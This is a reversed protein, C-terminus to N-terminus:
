FLRLTSFEFNIMAVCFMVDKELLLGITASIQRQPKGVEGFTHNSFLTSSTLKNM